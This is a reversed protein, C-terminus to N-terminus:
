GAFNRMKTSIELFIIVKAGLILIIQLYETYIYANEPYKEENTTPLLFWFRNLRGPPLNGIRYWDAVLEIQSIDLAIAFQYCECQCTRFGVVVVATLM